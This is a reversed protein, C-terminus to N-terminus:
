RSGYGTQCCVAASVQPFLTLGLGKMNRPEGAELLYVAWLLIGSIVSPSCGLGHFIREGGFMLWWLVCSLWDGSKQRKLDSLKEVM